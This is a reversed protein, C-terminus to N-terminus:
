LSPRPRVRRSRSPQQLLPLVLRVAVSTRASARSGPVFTTIWNGSNDAHDIFRERLVDLRPAAQRWWGAILPVHHPPCWLLM